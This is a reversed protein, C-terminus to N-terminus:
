PDPYLTDFWPDSEPLVYLQLARYSPASFQPLLLQQLKFIEDGVPYTETAVTTLQEGTDFEAIMQDLAKPLVSRPLDLYDYGQLACISPQPVAFGLGGPGCWGDPGINVIPETIKWSPNTLSMQVLGFEGSEPRALDDGFGVHLVTTKGNYLYQQGKVVIWKGTIPDIMKYADLNRVGDNEWLIPRNVNAPVDHGFINEEFDATPYESLTWVNSGLSLRHYQLTPVRVNAPWSKLALLESYFLRGSHFDDWTMTPLEDLTVNEYTGSIDYNPIVDNRDILLQSELVDLPSVWADIIPNYMLKEGNVDRTLIVIIDKGDFGVGNVEVLKPEVDTKAGTRTDVWKGNQYSLAIYGNEMKLEGTKTDWLYGAKTLLDMNKPSIPNAISPVETAASTPTIIVKPSSTVTPLPALTANPTCATLLIILVFLFNIRPM